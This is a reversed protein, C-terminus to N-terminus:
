EKNLVICKLKGNYLLLEFIDGLSVEESASIPNGSSSLAIAYGRSLTAFPSVSLLRNGLMELKLRLMKLQEKEALEHHEALYDIRQSYETLLGHMRRSSLSRHLYDLRYQKSELSSWLARSMRSEHIRLTERLKELDPIAMEAAATPTPARVDAVLDAITYDTEHGIASIVPVDSEFIARAVEESNFAWLDEASGGGRCVIVVDAKVKLARIASAISVEAGDGQVQAPSLIIRIPYVSFTYLVDRLAAGNPSTVIGICNPYSPLPRKRELDFLGEASLKQKLREFERHRFGFGSDLRIGRAVLQVQSKPGYFGVDGFVLVNLGDKLEFGMSLGHNRFLVCSIQCERDKLTFYRHGSRHNVVNSLEGHAWLDHLRLDSELRDRIRLTLETITFIQPTM